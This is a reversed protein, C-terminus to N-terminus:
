RGGLAGMMKGFAQDFQEQSSAALLEDLVGDVQKLQALAVKTAGEPAGMKVEGLRIEAAPLEQM